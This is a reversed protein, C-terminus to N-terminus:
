GRVQGPCPRGDGPGAQAATLADIAEDVLLGVQLLSIADFVPGAAAACVTERVVALVSSPTDGPSPDCPDPQGDDWASALGESLQLM